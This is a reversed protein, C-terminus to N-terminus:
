LTSIDQDDLGYSEFVITDILERLRAIEEFDVIAKQSLESIQRSLEGLKEPVANPMPLEDLEYVNVHNNTSFKMFYWNMLKSNLIAVLEDQDLTTGKPQVVNCSNGVVIGAPVKAAVIRQSLGMNAVQQCVIREVRSGVPM